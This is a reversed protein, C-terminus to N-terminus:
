NAEDQVEVVGTLNYEDIITWDRSGGLSNKQGRKIINPNSVNHTILQGVKVETVNPGIAMVEYYPALLDESFNGEPDKRAQRIFLHKGIPRVNIEPGVPDNSKTM